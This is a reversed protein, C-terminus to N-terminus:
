WMRAMTQRRGEREGEGERGSLILLGLVVAAEAVGGAGGGFLAEDDVGAGGDRVGQGGEPDRGRADDQEAM